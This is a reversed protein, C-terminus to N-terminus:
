NVEVRATEADFTITQQFDGVSIIVTGGRNPRGYGDFVLKTTGDFDVSDIRARYPPLALYVAYVNGPRDPDDVNKLDYSNTDAHFRVKVQSSMQAARRAAFEIDAAIRRAASEVRQTAISNAFRPIAIAALISVIALVVVIELLTFAARQRNALSVTDCRSGLRCIRRM